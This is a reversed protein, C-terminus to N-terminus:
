KVAVVRFVTTADSRKIEKLIEVKDATHQFTCTGSDVYLINRSGSVGYNPIGTLPNITTTEHLPCAVSLFRYENFALDGYHQTPQQKLLLQPIQPNIKNYFLFFIAPDTQEDTIVVQIFSPASSDVTAILDKYGEQRYWPRHRVQNIYYQHLYYFFGYALCLVIITQVILSFKRATVKHWISYLGISNLISLTPFVILTRQLNPVDDFTLASGLPALLIWGSLFLALKKNSLFLKWFGYLLLPLEFLYLLGMQPVRYRDPLGQDTFLFEYSFHEFYTQLFTLSYSVVKNHFLRSFLPTVGSVGDERIQEDLVLQTQPQQFISLMRIRQSLTHSSLIIIIPLLVVILFLTVSIIMQKKLYKSYTLLFLLPIYFPLFARPAQYILLSIGFCFYSGAVFIWHLKRVWIFYLLTGFVIFFVVLINETATRSLNIHWPSIALLGASILAITLSWREGDSKEGKHNLGLSIKEDSRQIILILALVFFYTVLVTLTGFLAAPFRVAFENLGFLAIFPIAAYAYGAPSYLFSQLHLPLFNGNIDRGTKLISYANYGLFAEDRHFGVPVVGLKYFRLFAAILVISILFYYRYKHLIQSGLM